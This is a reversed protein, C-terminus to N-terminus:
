VLRIGSNRVSLLMECANAYSIQFYVFLVPLFIMKGHFHYELTRNPLYEYLLLRQRDRSYYGVLSVLHRLHVLSIIEVKAKFESLHPSNNPVIVQGGFM